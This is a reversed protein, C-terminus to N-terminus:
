LFHLIVVAITNPMTSCYIVHFLISLRFSCIRISKRHVCQPASVEEPPAFSSRLNGIDLLSPPDHPIGMEKLLQWRRHIYYRQLLSLIIENIRYGCIGEYNIDLYSNQM